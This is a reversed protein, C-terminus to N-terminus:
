CICGRCLPCTPHRLLWTDACQLHFAHHCVPILRALQEEEIDELCVACATPMDLERGTIITKPDLLVPKIPNVRRIHHPFFLRLCLYIICVIIIVIFIPIMFGLVVLFIYMYPHMKEALILTTSVSNHQNM